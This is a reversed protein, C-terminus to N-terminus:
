IRARGRRQAGSGAPGGSARRESDILTLSGNARFGVRPVFAAIEEWLTARACRWRWSRCWLGSWEGLHTWLKAGHRRLAHRRTRPASRQAGRALAFLAHTTGLIGAGVVVTRQGALSQELEDFVM